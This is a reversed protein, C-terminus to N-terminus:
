ADACEESDDDGGLDLDALAAKPAVHADLPTDAAAYEHGGGGLRGSAPRQRVVGDLV